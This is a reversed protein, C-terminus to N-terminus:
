FYREPVILMDGPRVRDDLEAKIEQERGDAVRRIKIRGEAGRQNVGGALSLVQRVTADQGITYEGPRGVYGFVYVPALRPVAITDGDRLMPNNALVGNQLATLDARIETVGEGSEMVPAGSATGDIRRRVVAVGAANPTPSGALALAEVLTMSRTLGFTGPSRVEGVIFIRQSHYQDVVVTVRPDKFYGDHLRQTVEDQLQRVTLGGARLRGLMPFTFTGDAEVTFRETGGGQGWVTITFVDQPGLVYDNQQGSLTVTLSTIFAVTVLARFM